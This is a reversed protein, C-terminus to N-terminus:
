CAMSVEIRNVHHETHVHSDQGFKVHGAWHAGRPWDITDCHSEVRGFCSIRFLACLTCPSPFQRLSCCVGCIWFPLRQHDRRHSRAATRVPTSPNGSLLTAPLTPPEDVSSMAVEARSSSTLRPSARIEQAMSPARKKNADEQEMKAREKAELEEKQAQKQVEETWEQLEKEQEGKSGRYLGSVIVKRESEERTRPRLSAQRRFVESAEEKKDQFRQKEEARKRKHERSRRLEVLKMNLFTPRKPPKTRTLQKSLSAYHRTSWPHLKKLERPQGHNDEMSGEPSASSAHTQQSLAAPGHRLGPPHDCVVGTRSDAGSAPGSQEGEGQGERREM